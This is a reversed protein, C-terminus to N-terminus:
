DWSGDMFSPTITHLKEDLSNIQEMDDGNLSFDFVNANELIRDRRVSKPIAVWGTELAWRIMIQAPTKGYKKAMSMITPDGFKTARALPGWSEVQIGRSKCFGTLTPASNFPSLEVQDVAPVVPSDAIMEKLHRQMYNSVGIARVRGQECLHVLARWADARTRPIPWHILYLDVYDMGLKALSEDYAKLTSDYGQDHNWVKTTVFIEDRPIGSQRIGTGVDEENRYIAATDIHRYGAELAWRVAEQTVQGKESEFTGLGLIPM